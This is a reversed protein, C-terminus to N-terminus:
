SREGRALVKRAKDALGYADADESYGLIALADAVYDRYRPRIGMDRLERAVNALATVTHLSKPIM